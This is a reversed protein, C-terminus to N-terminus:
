YLIINLKKNPKINLLNFIFRAIDTPSFVIKKLFRRMRKYSSQIKTQGAIMSSMRTLNVTRCELLSLLMM